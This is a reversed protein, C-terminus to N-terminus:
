EILDEISDFEEREYNEEYDSDSMQGISCNSCPFESEDYDNVNMYYDKLWECGDCPGKSIKSM